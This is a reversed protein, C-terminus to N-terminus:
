LDERRVVGGDDESYVWEGAEYGDALQTLWGTFSGAVVARTGEDHWMM